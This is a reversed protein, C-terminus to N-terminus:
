GNIRRHQKSDQEPKIFKLQITKRAIGLMDSHINSPFCKRHVDLIPLDFALNNRIDKRLDSVM